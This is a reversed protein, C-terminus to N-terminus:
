NEQGLVTKFKHVELPTEKLFDEIIKNRKWEEGPTCMEYFEDRNMWNYVRLEFEGWERKELEGKNVKEVIEPEDSLILKMFATGSMGLEHKTNDKIVEVQEPSYTYVKAFDKRLTGFSDCRMGMFENNKYYAFICNKKEPTEM